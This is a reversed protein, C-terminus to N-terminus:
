AVAFFLTYVGGFIDKLGAVWRYQVIKKSDEKKGAENSEVWVKMWPTM